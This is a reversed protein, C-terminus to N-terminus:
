FAVPNLFEVKIRGIVLLDLTIDIQGLDGAYLRRQLRGEHIEAAIAMAEEGKRFDVGIVVLDGLLIALRQQSFLGGVGLFLGGQAGGLIIIIIGAALIGRAFVAVVIIGVFVANGLDVGGFLILHRGDLVTMYVVVEVFLAVIVAGTIVVTVIIGLAILGAFTFGAFAVTTATTAVPTIITAPTAATLAARTLRGGAGLGVLQAGLAHFQAAAVLNLVDDM